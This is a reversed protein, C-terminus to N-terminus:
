WVLRLTLSPGDAYSATLAGARSDGAAFPLTFGVRRGGSAPAVFGTAPAAPEAPRHLHPVLFGAASGVAAGVLVDTFYHRDAAIRLYGTTAALALGSGLVWGANKEKRAFAITGTAVAMCFSSSSHGSFFSVRAEESDLSVGPPPDGSRTYPRPRRAIKKTAQTVALTIAYSEVLLGVDSLAAPRNGLSTYGIAQGFSAFVTTDSWRDARNRDKWRAADAVSRDLGNLHSDCWRCCDPQTCPKGFHTVAVVGVSGATLAIDWGGPQDLRPTTGDKGTAAFVGGLATGAALGFLRAKTRSEAAPLSPGPALIVAIVALLTERRV